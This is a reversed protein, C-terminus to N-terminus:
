SLLVPKGTPLNSLNRVIRKSNAKQGAQTVSSTTIFKSDGKNHAINVTTKPALSFSKQGFYTAEIQPALNSSNEQKPM